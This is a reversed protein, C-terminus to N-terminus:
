SGLLGVLTSQEFDLLRLVELFLLGGDHPVDELLTVEFHLGLDFLIGLDDM